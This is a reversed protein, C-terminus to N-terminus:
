STEDIALNALNGRLEFFGDQASTPNNSRMSWYTRAPMAAASSWEAVWNGDTDQDMQIAESEREGAANLFNVVLLASAPDVAVGDADTFTTSFDVVSGRFIVTALM